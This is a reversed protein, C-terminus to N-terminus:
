KIGAMVQPLPNQSLLEESLSDEAQAEAKLFNWLTEIKKLDKLGRPYVFYFHAVPLPADPLIQVLNKCSKAIYPPLCAIGSGGEVARAIGHLNNIALYAERKIGPSTGCTLFWNANDFLVMDKGDFIILRHHDLDDLSLPVGSKLLYERSSYIYLPRSLLKHYILNEDDTVTVTIAVDSEHLTLDVPDDSLRVTLRFHPYLASFKHFRPTLWSTGFGISSAITLTNQSIQVNETIRAQVMALDSFVDRATRFLLEGQETLQLGRTYRYFLPSGIRNELSSIQRSIASQGINLRSSAQTFSGSEVVNYFVRLKDWDLM